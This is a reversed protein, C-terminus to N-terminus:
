TNTSLGQELYTKAEDVTGKSFRRVYGSSTTATVEQDGISHVYVYKRGSGFPLEMRWEHIGRKTGRDEWVISM